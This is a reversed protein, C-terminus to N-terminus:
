EPFAKVQQLPFGCRSHVSDRPLLILGAQLIPEDVKVSPNMTSHVKAMGIRALGKAAQLSEDVSAKAPVQVKAM